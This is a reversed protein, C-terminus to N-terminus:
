LLGWVLIALFWTHLFAHSSVPIEVTCLNTFKWFSCDVDKERAPFFVFSVSCILSVMLLIIIKM